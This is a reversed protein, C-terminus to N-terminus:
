AVIPTPPRIASVDYTRPRALLRARGPRRSAPWGAPPEHHGAPEPPQGVVAAPVHHGGPQHGPVLALGQATVGHDDRSVRRRLDGVTAPGLARRAVARPAGALAYRQPGFM